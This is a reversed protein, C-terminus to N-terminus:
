SNMCKRLSTLLRCVRSFNGLRHYKYVIRLGFRIKKKKKHPPREATPEEEDPGIDVLWDEMTAGEAPPPKKYKKVQVAKHGERRGDRSTSPKSFLPSDGSQKSSPTTRRKQGEAATAIGIHPHHYMDGWSDQAVHACIYCDRVLYHPPVELTSNTLRCM